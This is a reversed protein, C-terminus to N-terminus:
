FVKDLFTRVSEINILDNFTVIGMLLLLFALGVHQAVSIVKESLPKRRVGEIAFFVLHGGDLVPIPLLNLIGLQLSLFSLFYFFSAIGSRAAAATAQAIQIPGGLMKYSLKFTVLKGLVDLTLLGLERVEKLGEKISEFFGYKVKVMPIDRISVDKTVGMVYRSLSKNYEPTLMMALESGDREVTVPIPEGKSDNIAIVMDTWDSIERDGIRVVKDKDKLGSKDAPSGMSVHDLVADNGVFFAPEVGIYGGRGEPANEVRINKKLLENGRRIEFTLDQDVSVVVENMFERWDTIKQNNVSEFVDGVLVGAQAAPSAERVGVVQPREQFFKPESKGIMFVVPMLLVCLLLNMVPGAVVVRMRTLVPKNFYATEDGPKVESYEDGKMKVFGGFPLLSVKYETEGKKFGFLKPGFGISFKEVSIGSLRAVIFHGWEHVVILISLAIIFYVFTM